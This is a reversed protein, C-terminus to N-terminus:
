NLATWFGADKIKDGDDFCWCVGHEMARRDLNRAVWDADMSPKCGIIVCHKGNMKCMDKFSETKGTGPPAAIINFNTKSSIM